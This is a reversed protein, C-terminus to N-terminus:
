KAPRRAFLRLPLAVLAQLWARAAGAGCRLAGGFQRWRPCVGAEARVQTKGKFLSTRMALPLRSFPLARAFDADSWEPNDGDVLEPNAIPKHKM